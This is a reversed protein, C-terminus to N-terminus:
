RSPMRPEIISGSMLLDSEAVPAGIMRQIQALAQQVRRPMPVKDTLPDDVYRWAPVYPIRVIGRITDKDLMALRARAPNPEPWPGDAVAVILPRYHGAALAARVTEGAAKTGAATLRAVVLLPRDDPTVVHRATDVAAPALLKTVTTAGAGGHAGCVLVRRLPGAETSRSSRAAVGHKAANRIRM